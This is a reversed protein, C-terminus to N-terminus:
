SHQLSLIGFQTVERQNENLFEVRTTAAAPSM